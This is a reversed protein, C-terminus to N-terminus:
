INVDKNKMEKDIQNIKDILEFLMTTIWVEKDLPTKCEKLEKILEDKNILM